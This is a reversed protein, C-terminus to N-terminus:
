RAGEEAQREEGEQRDDGLVDEVLVDAEVRPHHGRRPDARDAPRHDHGPEAPVLVHAAHEQDHEAGEAARHRGERERGVHTEARRDQEEGARQQHHAEREVVDSTCSMAGGSSRPRTTLM